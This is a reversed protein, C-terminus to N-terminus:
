GTTKDYLDHFRWTKLTRYHEKITLCSSLLSQYVPVYGLVLITKMKLNMHTGTGGKMASKNVTQYKEIFGVKQICVIM